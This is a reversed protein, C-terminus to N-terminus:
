WEYKYNLMMGRTSGTVNWHPADENTFRLTLFGMAQDLRADRRLDAKRGHTGGDVEIIMGKEPCFFDAIRWAIVTQRRFKYGSLRSDRLSLWLRHEPETPNKRMDAARKLLVARTPGGGGVGEESSSPAEPGEYRM